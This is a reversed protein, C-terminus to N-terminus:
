ASPHDGTDHLRVSLRRLARVLRMKVAAENIGIVEAIERISLHELYRLVLVDRDHRKMNTLAQQVQQRMENRMAGQSPSSGAAALRSALQVTSQGPLPIEAHQQRGVTRCDAIVHMRYAKVVHQWALRRLWPYFSMPRDALYGPLKCVAETMADQVIDSPDVRARLCPDLHVQVMEKLRNRHRAMLAEIAGRDSEAAQRLLRDTDSNM